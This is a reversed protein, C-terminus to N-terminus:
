KKSKEVFLKRKMVDNLVCIDYNMNKYRHIVIWSNTSLLRLVIDSTVPDTVMIAVANHCNTYVKGDDTSGGYTKLFEKIKEVSEKSYSDFKIAHISKVLKNGKFETVDEKRLLSKTKM